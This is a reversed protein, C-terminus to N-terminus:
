PGGRRGPPGGRGTHAQGSWPGRQSRGLPRVREGAKAQKRRPQRGREGHLSGAAAPGRGEPVVLVPAEAHRIVKEAVSGLLARDLGRRGHTAIVILDLKRAHAHELIGSAPDAAVLVRGKVRELSHQELFEDLAAESEVIPPMPVVPFPVVAMEGVSRPVVLLAEISAGGGALLGAV